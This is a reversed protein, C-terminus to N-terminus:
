FATTRRSIKWAEQRKVGVISGTIKIIKDGQHSGLRNEITKALGCHFQTHSANKFWNPIRIKRIHKQKKSQQYGFIKKWCSLQNRGSSRHCKGIFYM